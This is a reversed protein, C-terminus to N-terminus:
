IFFVSAGVSAVPECLERSGNHHVHVDVLDPPRTFLRLALNCHTMPRYAEGIFSLWPM